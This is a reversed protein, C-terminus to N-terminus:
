WPQLFQCESPSKPRPSLHAAPLLPTSIFAARPSTLPRSHRKTERLMVSLFRYIVDASANPAPLQYSGRKTLAVGRFPEWHWMQRNTLVRRGFLIQGNIACCGYSFQDQSDIVISCCAQFTAKKQRWQYDSCCFTIFWIYKMDNM